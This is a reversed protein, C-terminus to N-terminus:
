VTAGKVLKDIYKKADELTDFWDLIDGDMDSVSYYQIEPECEVDCIFNLIEGQADLSYEARATICEVAIIYGKYKM